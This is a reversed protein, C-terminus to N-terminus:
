LMGIGRRTTSKKPGPRPGKSGKSPYCWFHPSIQPSIRTFVEKPHRTIHYTPSMFQGTTKFYGLLHLVTKMPHHTSFIMGDVSISRANLSIWCMFFTAIEIPVRRCYFSWGIQKCEFCSKEQLHNWLVDVDSFMQCPATANTWACQVLADSCRLNSISLFSLHPVEIKVGSFNKCYSGMKARVFFCCCWFLGLVVWGSFVFTQNERPVQAVQSVLKYGRGAPVNSDM